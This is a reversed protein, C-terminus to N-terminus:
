SDAVRGLDVPTKVTLNVLNGARVRPWPLGVGTQATPGTQGRSYDRVPM